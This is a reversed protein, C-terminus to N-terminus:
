FKIVVNRSPRFGAKETSIVINITKSICNINFQELLKYDLFNYYYFKYLVFIIITYHFM